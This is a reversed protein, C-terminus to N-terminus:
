DFANSQPPKVVHLLLSRGLPGHGTASLGNAWGEVWIEYCSEELDPLWASATLPGSALLLVWTRQIPAAVETMNTQM